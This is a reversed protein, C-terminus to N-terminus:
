KNLITWHQLDQKGEGVQHSLMFGMASTLIARKNNAALTGYVTESLFSSSGNGDRNSTGRLLKHAFISPQCLFLPLGAQTNVWDWSMLCHFLCKLSTTPTSPKGNWSQFALSDLDEIVSMSIRHMRLPEWDRLHSSVLAESESIRRWTGSEPQQQEVKPNRPLREDILRKVKPILFKKHFVLLLGIGSSLWMSHWFPRQRDHKSDLTWTQPSILNWVQHPLPIFTLKPLKRKICWVDLCIYNLCLKVIVCWFPPDQGKKKRPPERGFLLKQRLSGILFAVKGHVSKCPAREM